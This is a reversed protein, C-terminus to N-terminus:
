GLRDQINTIRNEIRDLRENTEIGLQIIRSLRDIMSPDEPVTREVMDDRM